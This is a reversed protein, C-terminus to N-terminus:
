QAAAPAPAPTTAPTSAVEKSAKPEVRVTDCQQKGCQESTSTVMATECNAVAMTYDLSNAGINVGPTDVAVRFTQVTCGNVMFPQGLPYPKNQAKSWLGANDRQVDELAPTTNSGFNCASLVLGALLVTTFSQSIKLFRHSVM